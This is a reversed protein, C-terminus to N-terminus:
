QEHKTDTIMLVSSPRRCVAFVLGSVSSLLGRFVFVPGIVALLTQAQTGKDNSILWKVNEKGRAELRESSTEFFSAERWEFM